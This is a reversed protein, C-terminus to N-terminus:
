IRLNNIFKLANEFDNVAVYQLLLHEEESLHWFSLFTFFYGYMDHDIPNANFYKKAIDLGIDCDLVIGYTTDQSFFERLELISTHSDTIRQKLQQTLYDCRRSYASTKKMPALDAITEMNMQCLEWAINALSRMKIPDTLFSSNTFVNNYIDEITTLSSDYENNKVHISLTNQKDKDIDNLFIIFNNYMIIDTPDLWFYRRYLIISIPKEIKHSFEFIIKKLEHKDFTYDILRNITNCLSYFYANKYSLLKKYQYDNINLVNNSIISLEDVLKYLDM